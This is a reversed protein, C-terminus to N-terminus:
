DLNFIPPRFIYKVSRYKPKDKCRCGIYYPSYKGEKYTLKQRCDYCYAPYNNPEDLELARLQDKLTKEIEEDSMREYLPLRILRVDHNEALRNKYQDFFRRKKHYEGDVEIILIPFYCNNFITFDFHSLEFHTKSSPMVNCFECYAIYNEKFVLYESYEKFVQSIPLHPFIWFFEPNIIKHLIEFVKEEAESDWLPLVQNMRANGKRRISEKIIKQPEKGDGM